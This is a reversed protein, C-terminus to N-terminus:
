DPPPTPPTLFTIVCETNITYVVQTGYLRPNTEQPLDLLVQMHHNRDKQPGENAYPQLSQGLIRGSGNYAVQGEGQHTIKAYPSVLMLDFNGLALEGEALILENTISLPSQLEAGHPNSIMLRSIRNGNADILSKSEGSIIVLGKGSIGANLKLNGTVALTTHKNLSLTTKEYLTFSVNGEAAQKFSARLNLPHDDTASVVPEGIMNKAPAIMMLIILSWIYLLKKLVGLTYLM